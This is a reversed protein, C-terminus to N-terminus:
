KSSSGCSISSVHWCSSKGADTFIWSRPTNTKKQDKTSYYWGRSLELDSIPAIKETLEVCVGGADLSDGDYKCTYGEPCARETIGGCYRGKECASEKEEYWVVDKNSCAQCVSCYSNGDSGCIFPPPAVCEETCVDPRPTPCKTGRIESDLASTPTQTTIPSKAKSASQARLILLCILTGFLILVLSILILNLGNSKKPPEKPVTSSVSTQPTSLNQM